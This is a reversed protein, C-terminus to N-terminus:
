RCSHNIKLALHLYIYSVHFRHSSGKEKQGIYLRHTDIAAMVRPHMLLRHPATSVAPMASSSPSPLALFHLPEHSEHPTQCGWPICDWTMVKPPKRLPMTGNHHKCMPHNQYFSMGRKLSIIDSFLFFMLSFYILMQFPTLYVKPIICRTKVGRLM